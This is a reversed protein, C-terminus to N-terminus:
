KGVVAAHEREGFLSDQDRQGNRVHCTVIRKGAETVGLTQHPGELILAGPITFEAPSFLLCLNWFSPSRSAFGPGPWTVEPSDNEDQAQKRM